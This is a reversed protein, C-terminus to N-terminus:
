INYYVIKGTDDFINGSIAMKFLKKGLLPKGCYEGFISIKEEDQVETFEIDNNWGKKVFAFKIEECTKFKM